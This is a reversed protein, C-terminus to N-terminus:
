CRSNGNLLTPTSENEGRNERWPSRGELKILRQIWTLREHDSGAHTEIIWLAHTKGDMPPLYVSALNGLMGSQHLNVIQDKIPIGSELLREQHPWFRPSGARYEDPFTADPIPLVFAISFLAIHHSDTPIVNIWSVATQEMLELSAVAELLTM